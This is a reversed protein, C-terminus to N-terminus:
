IAESNINIKGSNILLWKIAAEHTSFLHICIKSKICNELFLITYATLMPDQQIISARIDIDQNYVKIKERLCNLDELSLNIRSKSFDANIRINASKIKKIFNNTYTIIENVTSHGYVRIDYYDLAENYLYNIM